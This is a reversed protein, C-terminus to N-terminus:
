TDLVVYRTSVPGFGLKEVKSKLSKHPLRIRFTQVKFGQPKQSSLSHCSLGMCGYLGVPSSVRVAPKARFELGSVKCGSGQGWFEFGSVRFEFDSVRM